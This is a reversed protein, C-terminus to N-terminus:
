PKFETAGMDCRGQQPRKVGRQDRSFCSTPTTGPAAPSGANRAQSGRKLLHTRTAGGNDALPRLRAPAGIINDASPFFGSCGAGSGLLTYSLNIEGFCDRGTAAGSRNGAIITNAATASGGLEAYGGGSGGSIDDADADNRTITVNYMALSGGSTIAIGGGGADARNGSITSNVVLASGGSHYIGAGTGSIGTATNSSLTSDRITLTGTGAGYVGGGQYQHARNKAVTTDRLTLSGGNYFGGGGSDARNGSIVSHRVDLEGAGTLRVGGGQLEAHGGRISLRSIANDQEGVVLASDDAGAADVTARGRGRPRLAVDGGMFLYGKGLIPPTTSARTLRYTKGGVVRVVDHGAGSRCGGFPDDLYAAQLAERLACKASQGFQDARTDVNITAASAVPAAAAFVALALIAGRRVM